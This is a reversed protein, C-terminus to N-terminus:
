LWRISYTDLLAGSYWCVATGDFLLGAYLSGRLLFCHIIIGVRRILVRPRRTMGQRITQWTNTIWKAREAFCPWSRVEARLCGMARHWLFQSPAVPGPPTVFGARDFRSRRHHHRSEVHLICATQKLLSPHSSIRRYYGHVVAVRASSRAPSSNRRPTVVNEHKYIARGRHM